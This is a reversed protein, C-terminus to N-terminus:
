YTSYIRVAQMYVRAKKVDHQVQNLMQRLNCAQDAIVTPSLLPEPLLILFYILFEINVPFRSYVFASPNSVPLAFLKILSCFIVSFCVSRKSSVEYVKTELEQKEM